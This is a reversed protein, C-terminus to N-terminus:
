GGTGAWDYTMWPFTRGVYNGGLVMPQAHPAENIRRRFVDLEQEFRREYFQAMDPDEQQAYAAALAWVAVANHLQSPMDPEGGTGDAIWDRPKRYYRVTLDVAGSPTPWLTLQGGWTTYHSPVDSTGGGVSTRTSMNEPSVWALDGSSSTIAVVQDFDDPLSTIISYAASGAVTELTAVAEYFPWRTEAQEVRQSGERIYIDMLEDPLDVDVLTLHARVYDRIQQLNLAM